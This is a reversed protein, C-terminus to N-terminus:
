NAHEEAQQLRRKLKGVIYPVGWESLPFYTKAINANGLRGHVELPVLKELNMDPITVWLEM